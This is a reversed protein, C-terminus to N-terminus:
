FKTVAIAAFILGIISAITYIIGALLYYRDKM